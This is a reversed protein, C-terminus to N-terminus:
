KENIIKVLVKDFLISIIAVFMLYPLLLALSNKLGSNKYDNFMLYIYPAHLLFIPMSYKGLWYFLRNIVKFEYLWNCINLAIIFFGAANFIDNFALGVDGCFALATGITEMALGFLFPYNGIIYKKLVDQNKLYINALYIGATYEFLFALFFKTFVTNSSKLVVAYLVVYGLTMLLTVLLAKSGYRKISSYLLPFILYLQAITVVFWWPSNIIMVYKEIFARYLLVSALFSGIDLGSLKLYKPIDGAIIGSIWISLVIIMISLYYPVIIKSLRKKYWIHWKTNTKSYSLCLGFASLIIFIHVGQGGLNSATRLIGGLYHSFWHYLVIGFIAYGKLLWLWNTDDFIKKHM